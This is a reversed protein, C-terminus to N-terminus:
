EEKEGTKARETRSRVIFKGYEGGHAQRPLV